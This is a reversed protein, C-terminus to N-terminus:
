WSRGRRAGALDPKRPLTRALEREWTYRSKQAERQWYAALSTRRGSVVTQDSLSIDEQTSRSIDTAAVLRSVAYYVVTDAEVGDSIDAYNTTALTATLKGIGKVTITNTNALTPIYLAVGSGAITTPVDMHLYAPFMGRREGYYRYGTPTNSDVQTISSLELMETANDATPEDIEYWSTGAVPTISMTVAKYVHPWLGRLTADVAEEIQNYSFVPDRLIAGSIAHTTGTGPAAGNYNRIVTLTTASALVTILCQEGDDQFEVVAGVDYKTTDAVDLGTETTDMAETCTDQFPNDNLIRRIRRVVTAKALAM